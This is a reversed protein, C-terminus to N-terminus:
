GKFPELKCDVVIKVNNSVKDKVLSPIKINYDSLLINFSTTAKLDSGEVKITGATEVDRTVGHITLKGKVRVPYTGPKTYQVEGNNVVSGKFDAKPFKDSEIYNENFHEQMLANEFEFGKMLVSFQLAGSRADLVAAASKNRAEIDELPAKSYFEIRGSKTFFKDQAKLPGALVLALAILSFSKQLM